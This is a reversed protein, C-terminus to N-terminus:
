RLRTVRRGVGLLSIYLTSKEVSFIRKKQWRFKPVSIKFADIQNWAGDLRKQEM